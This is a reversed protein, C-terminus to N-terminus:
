SRKNQYILVSFVILISALFSDIMLFNMHTEPIRTVTGLFYDFYDNALLVLFLIVTNYKNPKIKPILIIGEVVMGFHLFFNIVGVVQDEFVLYNGWYLWIALMTWVGYKIAYASALFKLLDPIKKRFYIMVCVVAFLLVSIPSDLIVIWLLPSSDMLQEWYYHIGVFFGALNAFAILILLKNNGFIKESLGELNM